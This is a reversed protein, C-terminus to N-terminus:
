RAVRAWIFLGVGGVLMSGLILGSRISDRRQIRRRREVQRAMDQAAAADLAGVLSQIINFEPQGHAFARVEVYRGDPADFAIAFSPDGRRAPHRERVRRAQLKSREWVAIRRDLIVPTRIGPHADFIYLRTATLVWLTWTALGGRRWIAWGQFAWEMLGILAAVGFGGLPMVANPVFWGAVVTPEPVFPQIAALLKAEKEQWRPLAFLAEIAWPPKSAESRPKPRGIWMGKIDSADAV